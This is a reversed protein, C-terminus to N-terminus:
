IKIVKKLYSRDAKKKKNAFYKQIQYVSNTTKSLFPSRYVIYLIFILFKFIGRKGKKKKKTGLLKEKMKKKKM